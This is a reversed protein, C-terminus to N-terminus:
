LPPRDSEQIRNHWKGFLQFAIQAAAAMGELRDDQDAIGPQAIRHHPFDVERQFVMFEHLHAEAPHIAFRFLPKDGRDTFGAMGFQHLRDAM